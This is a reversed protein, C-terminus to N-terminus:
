QASLTKFFLVPLVALSVFQTCTFITFAQIFLFGDPFINEGDACYFSSYFKRIYIYQKVRQLDWQTYSLPMKSKLKFTAKVRLVLSPITLIEVLSLEASLM